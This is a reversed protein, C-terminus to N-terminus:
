HQLTTFCSTRCSYMENQMLIPEVPYQYSLNSWNELRVQHKQVEREM